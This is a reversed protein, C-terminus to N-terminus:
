STSPTIVILMALPLVAVSGRCISWRRLEAAVKGKRTAYWRATAVTSSTPSVSQRSKQLTLMTAQNDCEKAGNGSKFEFILTRQAIAVSSMCKFSAPVSEQSTQARSIQWCRWKVRISLQGTACSCAVQLLHTAPQRLSFLWMVTGSSRLFRKAGGFGCLTQSSRGTDDSDPNLCFYFLGMGREKMFGLAWDQWEQDKGAISCYITAVKASQGNTMGSLSSDPWKSVVCGWSCPKCIFHAHGRARTLSVLAKGEYKGGLEGVVIPQRTLSAFYVFAYPHLICLHCLETDHSSNDSLVNRKSLYDAVVQQVFSFHKDWIAPMNSPFEPVEFYKQMYVSPGDADFACRPCGLHSAASTPAAARYYFFRGNLLLYLCSQWHRAPRWAANRCGIGM